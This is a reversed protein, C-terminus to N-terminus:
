SFSATSTVRKSYGGLNSGPMQLALVLSAVYSGVMYYGFLVGFKQSRRDLKWILLSGLVTPILYLMMVITRLHNIRSAIFTGTLIGFFQFASQPIGLAATLLPDTVLGKIILKGFNAIEGNITENLLMYLALIWVQPDL